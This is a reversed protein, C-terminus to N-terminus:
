WYLGAILPTRRSWTSTPRPQAFGSTNTSAAPFRQNQLPGPVHTLSAFTISVSVCVRWRRSSPDSLGIMICVCIRLASYRAQADSILAM